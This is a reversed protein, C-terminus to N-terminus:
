VLNIEVLIIVDGVGPSFVPVEGLSSVLEWVGIGLLLLQWYCSGVIWYISLVSTLLFKGDM